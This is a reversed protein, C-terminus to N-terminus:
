IMVIIGVLMKEYAFCLIELYTESFNRLKGHATKYWHICMDFSYQNFNQMFKTEIFDKARIWHHIM